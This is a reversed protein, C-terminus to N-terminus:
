VKGWEIRVGEKKYKYLADEIIFKIAALKDETTAEARMTLAPQTNSARVVAWGDAFELRVGDITLM